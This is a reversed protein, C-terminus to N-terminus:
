TWSCLVNVSVGPLRSTEPLARFEATWLCGSFYRDTVTQGYDAHQKDSIKANKGFSELIGFRSVGRRCICVPLPIWWTEPPWDPRGSQPCQRLTGSLSSSKKVDL